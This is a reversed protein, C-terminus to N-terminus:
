HSSSQHHWVSISLGVCYWMLYIFIAIKALKCRLGNLKPLNITKCFVCRRSYFMKNGHCRVRKRSLVFCPGRTWPGGGHVPDMSRTWWFISRTWPGREHVPDMSGRNESGRFNSFYVFIFYFTFYIILLKYYWVCLLQLEYSFLITVRFYKEPYNQNQRSRTRHQKTLIRSSM